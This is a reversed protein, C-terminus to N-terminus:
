PKEEFEKIRREYHERLAAENEEWTRQLEQEKLGCKKSYEEEKALIWLTLRTHEDDIEKFKAHLAAEQAERMKDIAARGRELEAYYKKELENKRASLEEDRRANEARNKALEADFKQNLLMEKKEFDARLAQREQNLVELKHTEWCGREKDLETSLGSSLQLYRKELEGEKQRMLSELEERRRALGHEELAVREKERRGAEAEAHAAKEVAAAHLAKERNQYQRELEAKRNEFEIALKDIEGEKQKTFTELLTKTKEEFRTELEAEKRRLDAFREEYERDMVDRHGNLAKYMEEKAKALQAFQEQEKGQLEQYLKVKLESHQQQLANKLKELEGEQAKLHLEHTHNAEEMKVKEAILREDCARRLEAAATEAAADKGAIIKELAIKEEAAREMAAAHDKALGAERRAFQEELAKKERALLERNRGALRDEFEAKETEIRKRADELSKELEAERRALAKKKEELDAADRQREAALRNELEKGFAAQEEKVRDALELEKHAYKLKLEDEFQLLKEKLISRYRSFEEKLGERQEHLAHEKEMHWEEEKAAWAGTFAKERATFREELTKEKLLYANELSRKVMDLREDGAKKLDLKTKELEAAERAALENQERQISKRLVDERARFGAALREKEEMIRASSQGALEEERRSWEKEWRSNTDSVIADLKKQNEVSLRNWKERTELAAAKYAAASAEDHKKVLELLQSEMQLRLNVYDQERQQTHSRLSDRIGAVEKQHLEKLASIELEKAAALEKEKEEFASRMAALRGESEEKLVALRREAARDAEALAASHGAAMDRRDEELKAARQASLDATKKLYEDELRNRFDELQKEKAQYLKSFERMKIEYREKLALEDQETKVRHSEIFGKELLEFRTRMATEQEALADARARMLAQVEAEKLEAARRIEEITFIKLKGIEAEKSSLEEKLARIENELQARAQRWNSTEENLIQERLKGKLDMEMATQTKWNEEWTKITSQWKKLVEDKQEAQQTLARSISTKNRNDEKLRTNDDSLAHIKEVAWRLALKATEVDTITSPDLQHDFDM